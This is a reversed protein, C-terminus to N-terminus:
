QGQDLPLRRAADEAVRRRASPDNVYNQIRRTETATAQPSLPHGNLEILRRLTGQPTEIATYVAHKEPTTNDERYVWISKDTKNAQLEASVAQRLEALASPDSGQPQAASLGASFVFIAGGAASLLGLLGSCRHM